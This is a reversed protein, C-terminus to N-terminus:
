SELKAHAVNTTHTHERNIASQVQAIRYRVCFSYHSSIHYSNAHFCFWYLASPFTKEWSIAM